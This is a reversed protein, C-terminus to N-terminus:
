YNGYIKLVEDVFENFQRAPTSDPAYAYLSKQAMAAHQIIVNQDIASNFIQVKMSQAVENLLNTLSRSNKTVLIGDIVLEPNAYKKVAAFTRYLQGSGQISFIDMGVPIIISDAACMIGITNLGLTPPSDIVIYDYMDRLPDIAEDLFFEKGDEEIRSELSSLNPSGAILDIEELHQITDVIDIKKMLVEMITPKDRYDGKLAFTLNSQADMDILM